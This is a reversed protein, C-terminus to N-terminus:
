VLAGHANLTLNYSTKKLIEGVYTHSLEQCIGLEIVKDALLRLTWNSHGEPAKSCALATIKAREDGSIVIPRGTRPKDSLYNLAVTNAQKNVYKDCIERMSIYTMGVEKGVTTYSKGIDLYLLVQIRKHIKVTLSSKSLLSELELRDQLDLKIHQKQM